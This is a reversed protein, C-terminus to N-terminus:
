TQQVMRLLGLPLFVRNAPNKAKGSRSPEFIQVGKHYTSPGGKWASPVSISSSHAPFQIM